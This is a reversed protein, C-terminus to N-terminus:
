SGTREVISRGVNRIREFCETCRDSTAVFQDLPKSKGCSDCEKEEIVMSEGEIQNLVDPRPIGFVVTLNGGQGENVDPVVSKNGTTHRLILAAARYRMEEDDSGLLAYAEAIAEPLHGILNHIGQLVDATIAERIVPALQRRLEDQTAEALDDKIKSDLTIGSTRRARSVRKRCTPGTEACYDSGPRAKHPCGYPAGACAVAADM